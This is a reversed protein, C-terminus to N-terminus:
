QHSCTVLPSDCLCPTQVPGTRYCALGDDDIGLFVYPIRGSHDSPSDTTHTNTM